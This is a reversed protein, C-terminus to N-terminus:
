FRIAHFRYFREFTPHALAMGALIGRPRCQYHGMWDRLAQLITENGEDPQARAWLLNTAGDLVIFIMGTQGQVHVKTHERFLHEGFEQARLGSIRSGAPPPAISSCVECRGCVEEYNKLIDQLGRLAHARRKLQAPAMHYQKLHLKQPEVKDRLEAHTRRITLPLDGVQPEPIAPAIQDDYGPARRLEQTAKPIAPTRM